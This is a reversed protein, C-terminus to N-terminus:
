YWTRVEAVAPGWMSPVDSITLTENVIETANVFEGLETQLRNVADQVAEQETPFTDGYPVMGKLLITFFVLSNFPNIGYGSGFQLQYVNEGDLINGTTQTFGFRAFEKVLPSPPHSYLTQSNSIVTQDPNMGSRYLWAYQSDLSMLDTDNTSLTYRYELNRYFDGYESNSYSYIPIIKTLDIHGYIEKNLEVDIEVYSDELIARHEAPFELSNYNDIEIVFYIYKGVLYNYSFGDSILASEIESNNWEVHNSVINKQSIPYINGELIYNLEATTGIANLNIFVENLTNLIFVPKKYKISCNSNVEALVKKTLDKLTNMEQTSYEVILHSAGDDGGEQGGSGFRYNVSANNLGQNVYSELDLLLKSGTADSGPIHENNIYAKFKNDTWAAEIFWYADIITSDQPIEFTYIIEPHNGNNGGSPNKVSSSIIDGMVILNTNKKTKHAFARANYGERTKNKSIGSIMSKSTMLTKEATKNNSYVLEEDIWLGYGNNQPILGESINTFITEAITNDGEAWFEGIQELVSNDLNTIIGENILNNVYNNNTENIKMDSLITILDESLFEKNLASGSKQIYIGSAVVLILLLISLGILADTTFIYGKKNVM